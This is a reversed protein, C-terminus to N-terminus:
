PFDSIKVCFRSEFFDIKTKPAVRLCIVTPVHFVHININANKICRLMKWINQSIKLEERVNETKM